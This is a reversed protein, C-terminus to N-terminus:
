EWKEKSNKLKDILRRQKKTPRGIGRDRYELNTEHILKVRNYEEPPTLDEMFDPVLKASLRSKPFDKVKVTKFLPNLSLTIIDGPKIEKAPKVSSNELKVKGAKCAETAQSRTKYLRVEWLWKDIRLHDSEM